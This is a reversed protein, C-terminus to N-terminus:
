IILLMSEWLEHDLYIREIDVSTWTIFDCFVAKYIALQGTVQHFYDHNRQLRFGGDIAELHFKKDLCAEAITEIRHKFPCKLEVIGMEDENGFIVGDPSAGLFPQEHSIFIGCAHVHLGTRSEYESVAIDKHDIGWQVTLTVPHGYDGMLLKLLSPPYFGPERRRNCVRGFNSATVGV